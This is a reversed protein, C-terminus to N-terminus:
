IRKYVIEWGGVFPYCKNLYYPLRILRSVLARFFHVRFSSEYYSPQSVVIELNHLKLTSPLNEFFRKSFDHVHAPFYIDMNIGFKLMFKYLPILYPARIYIFGKDNINNFLKTILDEAFFVHELVASAIVFDFKQSEDNRFFMEPTTKHVSIGENSSAITQENNVDVITIEVTKVGKKKLLNLAVQYSIEGSGGGYDLLRISPSAFSLYSCIHEAFMTINDHTVGKSFNRHTSYYTSYLKDLAFDTPYHSTSVAHCNNCHLFRISTNKLKTTVFRETSGCIPCKEAYEVFDDKDFEVGHIKNMIGKENKAECM